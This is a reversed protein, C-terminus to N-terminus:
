LTERVEIYAAFLTAKITASTLQTNHKGTFQSYLDEICEVESTHNNFVSKNDVVFKLIKQHEAQKTDKFLDFSNKFELEFRSREALTIGIKKAIEDAQSRWLQYAKQENTIIAIAHNIANSHVRKSPDMLQVVGGQNLVNEADRFLRLLTEVAASHDAVTNGFILNFQGILTQKQRSYAKNLDIFGFSLKELQDMNDSNYGSLKDIEDKIKNAVEPKLDRFLVKENGVNITDKIDKKGKERITLKIDHNSIFDLSHDYSSDKTMHDNNLDLGVNTMKHIIEFLDVSLGWSDSAKKAQYAEIYKVLDNDTLHCFLFDEHHELCIFYRTGVLSAYGNLLIYLACHKQFEYGNSGQVGSNAYQNIQPM